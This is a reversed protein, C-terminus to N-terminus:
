LYDSLYLWRFQRFLPECRRKWGADNSIIAECGALLGSAIILADPLRVNTTARLTAAQTAVPLDVPLVTLNPFATLFVHMYTVKASGGRIPRVLLESASVVSCFAQLAEGDDQVRRLLHVALAHAEEHVTHYALLTSSDLLIRGAGGLARDLALVTM